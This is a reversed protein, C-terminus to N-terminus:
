VLSTLENVKATLEKIPNTKPKPVSVEQRSCEQIANLELQACHANTTTQRRSSGIRTQSQSEESKIRIVQCLITEDTM